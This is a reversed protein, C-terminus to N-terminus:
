ERKLLGKVKDGVFNTIDSLGYGMSFTMNYQHNMFHLTVFKMNILPVYIIYHNDIFKMADCYVFFGLIVVFNILSIYYGILLGDIFTNWIISMYKEYVNEILYNYIYRITGLIVNLYIYNKGSYIFTIGFSYFTIGLIFLLRIFRDIMPFQILM